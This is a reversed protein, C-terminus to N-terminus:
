VNRSIEIRRRISRVRDESLLSNKNLGLTNTEVCESRLFNLLNARYKRKQLLREGICSPKIEGQLQTFVKQNVAGAPTSGTTQLQSVLYGSYSPSAGPSTPALASGEVTPVAATAVTSTTAVPTTYSANAIADIGEGTVYAGSSKWFRLNSVSTYTGSFKGRNYKEYSNNGAAITNSAPVLNVADASGYNLNTIGDTVTAGAGNTESWQFTAAM